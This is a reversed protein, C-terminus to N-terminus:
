GAQVSKPVKVFGVRLPLGHGPPPDIAISGSGGDKFTWTGLADTVVDRGRGDM